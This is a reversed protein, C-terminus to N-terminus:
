LRFCTFVVGVITLALFLASIVSVVLDGTYEFGFLSRVAYAALTLFFVPVLFRYNVANNAKAAPLKYFYYGVYFGGVATSIHQLYRFVPWAPLGTLHVPYSLWPLHEVMYHNAHTFSDWLLHSFIGVLICGTYSLPHKRFSAIWNFDRLTTLRAYFMSPLSNILPRKVLVHFIVLVVFAAPLCFVFAGPLTHSFRGSLKMKLFYEFDPIMSGVVLASASVSAYASRALPLVAAPHSFTFPM